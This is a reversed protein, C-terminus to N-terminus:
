GLDLADLVGLIHDARLLRIGAVEPTSTPVVATHFGMRAAEDLRRTTQAAQRLEGGLGLEGVAVLGEAIPEGILASAVAIAVAVDAGAEHVKLGGAVSAYVDYGGIPLGARAQLVALVLDLRGGDLGRASRRPAPAHTPSVLAQVEVLLPRVGEMTAMVVSGPLGARRDALFLSSPDAVEAMGLETMEFVGLENTSGFRHKLAHLMRLSHHRDGEFALVTDVIHELARPGALAGEKTVHGVLITAISREKAIRVLRHACERVQGVSGPVGTLDPDLVTQISDIALVDPATEVVRDLIAPLATETVILLNPDLTHLREARLRVQEKSEEGCVLLCRAGAAAMRGLSQLLLTSKGIGPEGGLLTVSGRVLGGGLVRDLEPVGTSRGVAAIPDVDVLPVVQNPVGTAHTGVAAPREEVLSSWSGCEPCRGLWKPAQAGCETCAFVTKSRVGTRSM